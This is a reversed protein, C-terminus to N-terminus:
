VEHVCHVRIADLYRKSNNNDDNRDDINNNKAAYTIVVCDLSLELYARSDSLVIFTYIYKVIFTIDDM